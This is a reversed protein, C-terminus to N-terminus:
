SAGGADAAARPAARRVRPSSGRTWLPFHKGSAAALGLLGVTACLYSLWSAAILSTGVPKNIALRQLFDAFADLSALRSLDFAADPPIMGAHYPMLKLHVTYLDLSAAAASVFVLVWPAGKRGFLAGLGLVILVAEPVIAGYLYWGIGTSINKELFIILSHYAVAAASAACALVPIALDQALNRRSRRVIRLAHFGLGIMSVAGILEFVRYMWSRAVLFSWGGTWIHTFAAADVVRRWDIESAASLKDAMSFRSAAVALQEGSLTGTTTWTRWYWWGAVTVAVVCAFGFGALTRKWKRRASAIGFGALLPLLPLLALAYAKTLAAAGTLLGLKMWAAISDPHRRVRLAALIVAAVLVIALSDNGIRCVYLFLGPSCALLVPVLLALSRRRLLYAAISFAFFLAASAIAMSLVRLLYVQAPLPWSRCLLYAPALVVYYLPPHQAEYQRAGLAPKVRAASFPLKRLEEQRRLREAPALRWFSDHTVTGPGVASASESLPVLQLSREVIPSVCDTRSPVRGHDGIHQIYAFHAWEDFGEWIPQEICYFLGRAIFALWVAALLARRKGWVPM